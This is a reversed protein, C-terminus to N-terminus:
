LMHYMQTGPKLLQHHRGAAPKNTPTNPVSCCTTDAATSHRPHCVLMVGPAPAETFTFAYNCIVDHTAADRVASCALLTGKAIMKHHCTVIASGSSNCHQCTVRTTNLLLSPVATDSTKSCDNELGYPVDTHCTEVAPSTKSSSTQQHAHKPCLLLHHWGCHQAESSAGADGRTSLGRHIHICSVYIFVQLLM